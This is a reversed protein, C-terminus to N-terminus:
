ALRPEIECRREDESHRHARRWCCGDSVPCLSCLPDRSRCVLAALDLMALNAARPNDSPVLRAIGDRVARVRRAEPHVPLGLYRGAVRVTNTDVLVAYQGYGFCLVAAAVYPGVGPLALLADKDPPVQGGHDAVIRGAVQRFSSIRWRLGLPRLREGVEDEDAVALLAVTPYRRLFDRYVPVVQRAQTRRLMLEAILVAYPDATERWPFSRAHERWWEVLQLYFTRGEDNCITPENV